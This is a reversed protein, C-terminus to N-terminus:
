ICSLLMSVEKGQPILQDLLQFLFLLFTHILKQVTGVISKVKYGMTIYNLKKGRCM